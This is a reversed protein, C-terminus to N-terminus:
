KWGEIWVGGCEIPWEACLHVKHRIPSAAAHKQSRVASEQGAVESWGRPLADCSEVHLMYLGVSHPLHASPLYQPVPVSLFPLDPLPGLSSHMWGANKLLSSM